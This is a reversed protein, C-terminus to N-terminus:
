FSSPVATEQAKTGKPRWMTRAKVITPGSELSLVHECHLTTEGSEINCDEHVSTHSQLVSDRVCERKYDLVISALEHNEFITIPASELIWAIYKVNNVHQNIDLDAWRPTLGTRVYKAASTSQGEPLKPLKRNDEDVIASRGVFYPEIETRVEDPIRALKRTLKNMMVWKSTAKLITHGTMSDRIHWDRRMGNKGNASVWTNVEVTDGWCPYREVIAQMQSVVWFLNRKSMEPTSGFGDGLLGATKVHNLATEQLHNMMTEISATRDAGIEYSRISFNQKFMLGDHIIRGFGFTDTLMDPRRPKWDLMTWQKEAALFITTIAALLMSWDPLQNYFTRPVSSPVTVTEHEVDAVASKGGNVKPVAAHARTKGARVANSSAGPKAAVGRVDLSEPREGLGNKPAAPAPSGPFFPSAAISAAM